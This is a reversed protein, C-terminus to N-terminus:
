IELSELGMISAGFDRHFSGSDYLMPLTRGTYVTLREKHITLKIIFPSVGVIFHAKGDTFLIRIILTYKVLWAHAVRIGRGGFSVLRRRQWVVKIWNAPVLATM